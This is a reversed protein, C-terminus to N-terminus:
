ATPAQPHTPGYLRLVERQMSARLRHKLHDCIRALPWGQLLREFGEIATYNYAAHCYLRRIPWPMADFEDWSLVRGYEGSWGGNFNEAM